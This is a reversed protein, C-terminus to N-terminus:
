EARLAVLPDVRAARRAPLLSAGVAVAGLLVGVAGFTLPDTASVGYLLGAVLRSLALAVVLGLGVGVLALLLAQRLVLGLVDRAGAGLAMRVGIETTRQSVTYAMVGYVGTAALVAALGAFLALLLLTTRRDGLSADAIQDMTRLTAVPQAPDIARVRGRVSRGIGLPAQRTRVVVRMSAVSRQNSSLYFAAAPPADLSEQPVDDVVGIIEFARAGRGLLVGRGVPSEGPFFRRAFARSAVVRIPAAADDHDTFTRGEILPIGLTRFYGPSVTNLPVVARDSLDPLPRGDIAVLTQPHAGDLPLSEAAGVSVVGPLGSLDEALRGYFERVRAPEAYRSPPLDIRAVLLHSAEFGLPVARLRVLSRMLLGAGVLLVASVAIEVVVLAGRTASHRRSPSAGRAEKLTKAPALHSAHLAPLLGFAVGTVVSLLATVALATADLRIEAARPVMDGVASALLRVLIAALALGLAGAAGALLLSETLLQRALRRGNAGLAARLALERQRGVSRALLLNAVNACAILLVCGVAGLLILLTPRVGKTAPEALPLVRYDLGADLYASRRDAAGIRDLDAQAQRRDVDPKLRGVVDLYTSGRDVAGPTLFSPAFTGPVLVDVHPDPFAFGAPLVGVIERSVGDLAVSKGVVAPDSGLQSRWLHHTLIAVPPGGREDERPLFNRGLVPRVRLAELLGPSCRLASLPLPEDGGTFAVTDRAYAGVAEFSRSEGLIGRFRAYSLDTLDLGRDPATTWVGVLRDPEPYPLPRLLVANVVAFLAANAGIGLAPAILAAATFGPSRLWSRFAHRLDQLLGDVM